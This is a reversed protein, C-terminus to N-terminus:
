ASLRVSPVGYPATTNALEAPNQRFWQSILLIEDVRETSLAGGEEHARFHEDVLKRMRSRDGRSKPRPVVARVSGRRIVYVRDDGDHGPVTYLFSLHDLAQRLRAFETRLMELREIRNRLSAAHEFEWRQAASNMRVTLWRIPEEADGNLFRKALEVRSAYEAESCRGACPGICRGVDFRHCLPSDDREFLENQDLYRMPVALGCDRLGLVDSLERVADAIRRGGRFPGFYLAQDDSVQRVVFLRPAPGTTFKLFSYSRRRKHRVNYRPRHRKILELERLLSAFESPEYEWVLDMAERLIRKAKEGDKARFYSLVRTRIQKSKGIYLIEGTASVM